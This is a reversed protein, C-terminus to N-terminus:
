EDSQSPNLDSNDTSKWENYTSLIPSSDEKKLMSIIEKIQAQENKFKNFEAENKFKKTKIKNELTDSQDQSTGLASTKNMNTKDSTKDKSLYIDVDNNLHMFIAIMTKDKNFAAIRLATSGNYSVANVNIETESLLNDVVHYNRNSVAAHLITTAYGEKGYYIAGTQQIADNLHNKYYETNLLIHFCKTDKTFVSLHFANLGDALISLDPNLNDIIYKVIEDQECLVALMLPTPGTPCKPVHGPNYKPRPTFTTYPKLNSNIFANTISLKKFEEINGTLISNILDDITAMEKEKIRQHCFIGARFINM